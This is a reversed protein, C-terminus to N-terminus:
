FCRYIEMNSRIFVNFFVQVFAGVSPALEYTGKCNVVFWREGYFFQKM